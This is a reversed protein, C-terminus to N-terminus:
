IILKAFIDGDEDLEGTEVFGLSSYLKRAVKNEPSYLIVVESAKGHPLTRLLEISKEIAKKGYGKRQYRKDIMFRYIDYYNESDESESIVYSMAIFGVMKDNCYIAYPMPIFSSKNTIVVYLEALTYIISAVFRGQEEEVRLDLCESFNDFTIKRLEIM